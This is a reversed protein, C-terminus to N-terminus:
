KHYNGQICHLMEHGLQEITFRSPLYITCTNGEWFSCAEMPLGGFGVYGRHRSEKECATQPNAVHKITVSTKNTFNKKSDWRFNPDRWYALANNTAYFAIFFIIQYFLITPLLKPSTTRFFQWINSLNRISVARTEKIEEKEMTSLKAFTIAMTKSSM